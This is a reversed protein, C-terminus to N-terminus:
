KKNNKNNNNKKTDLHQPKAANKTLIKETCFLNGKHDVGNGEGNGM